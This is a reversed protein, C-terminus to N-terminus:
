GASGLVEPLDTKEAILGYIPLGKALFRAQFESVPWGASVEAGVDAVVRWGPLMQALRLAQDFYAADDTLFRVQGGERLVRYFVNWGRSQLLRRRAHRRKPWPDPFLVHVRELAGEPVCRELVELIEGCLVAVNGLGAESVRRATLRARPVQREIGLFLRDPFQRAAAVLFDGRACGLDAEVPLGQEWWGEPLSGFTEELFTVGEM